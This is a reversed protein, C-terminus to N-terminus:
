ERKGRNEDLVERVMEQLHTLAGGSVDPKVIRFLEGATTRVYIWERTM